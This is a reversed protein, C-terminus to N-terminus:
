GGATIAELYPRTDEVCEPELASRDHCTRGLMVHLGDNHSIPKDWQVYVLNEGHISRENSPVMTGVEGGRGVNRNPHLLRVRDGVKM